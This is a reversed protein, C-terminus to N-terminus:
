AAELKEILERAAVIRDKKTVRKKNWTLTIRCGCELRHNEKTVPRGPKKPDRSKAGALKATEERTLGESKIKEALARKDDETKAKTAVQYAASSSLEGAAVDAQLDEPLDLLKLTRSVTAKSVCLADGLQQATWNNVEQLKRFANARDVDNLDERVCNEILQEQLVLQPPKEEGDFICKISDHGLLKVARYRCEGTVIVHKGLEANWRISIPQLLGVKDISQSLRKIHEDPIEKRPQDPDPVINAMSMYGAERWLKRGEREGANMPVIDPERMKLASTGRSRIGMSEAMNGGVNKRLEEAKLM